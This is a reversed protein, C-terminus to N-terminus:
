YRIILTRHFQNLFIRVDEKIEVDGSVMSNFRFKILTVNFEVKEWNKEEFTKCIFIQDFKLNFDKFSIWFVGETDDIRQNQKTYDFFSSSNVHEENLEKRFTEQRKKNTDKIKEKM